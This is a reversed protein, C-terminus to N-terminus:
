KGHHTENIAHRLQPGFGPDEFAPTPKGESAALMATTNAYFIELNAAYSSRLSITQHNLFGAIV